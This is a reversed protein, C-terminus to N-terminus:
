VNVLLGNEGLIDEPHPYEAILEDLLEDARNLEKKKRAM